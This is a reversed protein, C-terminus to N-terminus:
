AVKGQSRRRHEARLSQMLEKLQGDSLDCLKLQGDATLPLAQKDSADFAQSLLRQNFALIPALKDQLQQEDYQASQMARSHHMARAAAELEAESANSNKLFTVYMKRLSQPVVPVGTYKVFLYKVWGTMNRYTIPEGPTAGKTPKVKVFLRNHDPQFLPRYDDLWIQIYGYFTKGNTLQIDDVPACYEQYVKGTKYDDPALNIFWKAKEPSAMDEMPILIGYKFTGRVLTRGVELESVTRNREPPLFCFFGLVLLKQLDVAIANPKRRQRSVKSTGDKRKLVRSYHTNEVKEQQKKFVELATEWPVSRKAYSIAKPKAKRIKNVASLKQRLRCVM